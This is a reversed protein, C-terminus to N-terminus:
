TSVYVNLQVFSPSLRAETDLDGFQLRLRFIDCFGWNFIIM